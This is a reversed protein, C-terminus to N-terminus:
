PAEKPAPVVVALAHGAGAAVAIVIYNALAQPVATEGGNDGGWSVVTGDSKLALSFDGGADVAVAQLDSPVTTEGDQNTGWGMVTGDAKLALSHYYGASIRIVDKLGLPVNTVGTPVDTPFKDGWAVVTGNSL